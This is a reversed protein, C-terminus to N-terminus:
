RLAELDKYFDPYSKNVCEEDDITARIGSSVAFISLAMAIRHDNYTTFSYEGKYSPKGKIIVKNNEEKISVGVKSLETIMSVLRDSEKIKLNEYGTITSEGDILAGLTFLIPGLDICDNIDVNFPKLESAEIVLNKKEFCLKAGCKTLIDIIKSDSQLSNEPVNKIVVKGKTAGLVAFNALASFDSEVTVTKPAIDKKDILQLKENYEFGFQKLVDLTMQIYPWSAPKGNLAIKKNSRNLANLFLFGTIFQSSITSDLTVSTNKLTHSVDLATETINYKIRQKDLINLYVDMPRKFLGDKSIFLCKNSLFAIIPFLMRFTSASASVDFVPEDKPMNISQLSVSTKTKKFKAGLTELCNITAITDDCYNFNNIKTNEGSVFAAILYRHCYSKSSPLKITGSPTFPTITKM